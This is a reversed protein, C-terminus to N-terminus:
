LTPRRHGANAHAELAAAAHLLTAEDFHRAVLQVGIPLGDSSWGFPVSVAPNGTLGFSVTVAGDHETDVITGDVDLNAADHAQAVVPATPCLLLDYRKFFRMMYARLNEVDALAGVYERLTPKPSDLLDFNSRALEDRSGAVFQELHHVVEGALLIAAVDIPLREEWGALSVPETLCGLDELASAADDVAKRVELGIPAFPGEALWGVRLKPLPGDLDPFRPIPVPVAYPDIGDPGSLVTLATAVDHVTRAMPGAHFHRYPVSPWHGTLPIRGHTPKFGVIGCYHAPVRNSGGLDSGIGLPSLGAAIAAAEGGSSGGPTREPMWPNETRGFVRNSTESWLAFEPLNTKGLLIGGAEKLRRVVSADTSPVRDAYLRSGRTTRVGATDFSDKITFPVGHLPGWSEGRVLAAEAESAREVAGDALTVVANLNPNVAEIRELHARVVEVPSLAKDRILGALEGAGAYCIDDHM